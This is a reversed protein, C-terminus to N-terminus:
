LSLRDTSASRPLLLATVKSVGILSIMVICRFKQLKLYDKGQAKLDVKMRVATVVVAAVVMETVVDLGKM